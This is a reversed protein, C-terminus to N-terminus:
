RSAEPLTIDGRLEELRREVAARDHAAPSAALYASYAQVARKRQGLAWAADGAVRHPLPAEPQLEVAREAYALAAAHRGGKGLLAAAAALGQPDDLDLRRGEGFGDPRLVLGLQAGALKAGEGSREAPAFGPATARFTYRRAADPLRVTRSGRGLPAGDLSLAADRPLVEVYVEPPAAEAWSTAPRGACALAACAASAALALRLAPAATRALPPM